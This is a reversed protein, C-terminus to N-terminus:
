RAIELDDFAVEGTESTYLGAVGRKNNETDTIRTLYRGNVYFSLEDGQTRIELQNPNTGSRIISSKTWPVLTKQLNNKHLVVQYQPESGTYILLAYDELSNDASKEGHVILGYGSAPSVGDVSRATVRVRASETTYDPNPAYMVLYMKEKARMHFEDDAYWIDGFQFTGTRWKESAFDDALSAPQSSNSNANSDTNSNALSSNTNTNGNRNVVVSNSNNDSTTNQNTDMNALALIVIVLFVGLVGAVTIGGLVWWVANSKKQPASWQPAPRPPAFGAVQNILPSQPPYIETPPPESTPRPSTYRDTPTAPRPAASSLLPTGDELCFNLSPDTYTRNCSPCRKM